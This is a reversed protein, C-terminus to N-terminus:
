VWEERLGLSVTTEASRGEQSAGWSGWESNQPSFSYLIGGKDAVHPSIHETLAAVSLVQNSLLALVARPLSQPSWSAQKRDESLLSKTFGSLHGCM